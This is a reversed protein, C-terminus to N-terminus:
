NMLAIMVLVFIMSLSILLLLIVVMKRAFSGRAQSPKYIPDLWELNDADLWEMNTMQSSYTNGPSNSSGKGGVVPFLAASLVIREAFTALNSFVISQGYALSNVSAKAEAASVGFNERYIKAAEEEKGDHILQKIAKLSTALDTLNSLDDINFAKDFLPPWDRPLLPKSPRSRVKEPVIVASDCYGCQVIPADDGDYNLSANCSPCNFTYAM